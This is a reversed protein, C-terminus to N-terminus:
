HLSLFSKTNNGEKSRADAFLYKSIFSYQIWGEGEQEWKPVCFWLTQWHSSASIFVLQSFTPEMPCSGTFSMKFHLCLRRKLPSYKTPQWKKIITLFVCNKFLFFFSPFRFIINVCILSFTFKSFAQPLNSYQELYKSEELNFSLEEWQWTVQLAEGYINKLSPQLRTIPKEKKRWVFTMNDFWLHWIVFRLFMFLCGIFHSHFHCYSLESHFSELTM